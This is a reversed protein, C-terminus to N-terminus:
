IMNRKPRNIIEKYGENDKGFRRLTKLVNDTNYKYIPTEIVGIRAKM